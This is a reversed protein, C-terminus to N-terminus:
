ENFQSLKQKLLLQQKLVRYRSFLEAVPQKDEKTQVKRGERKEFDQQWQLLTQQLARKEAKILRYADDTDLSTLASRDKPRPAAAATTSRGFEKLADALNMGSGDTAFTSRSITHTGQPPMAGQRQEQKLESLVDRPAEAEAAAAAAAELAPHDSGVTTSRVRAGGAGMDPNFEDGIGTGAFKWAM